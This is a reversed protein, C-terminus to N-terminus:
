PVIKRLIFTVGKPFFTKEYAVYTFTQGQEESYTYAAINNKTESLLLKGDKIEWKGTTEEPTSESLRSVYKGDPMFTYTIPQKQEKGNRGTDAAYMQWKGCVIEPSINSASSCGSLFAICFVSIIFTRLKSEAM